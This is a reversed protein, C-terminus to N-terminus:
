GVGGGRAGRGGLLRDLVLRQRENLRHLNVGQWFRAKRVEAESGAVAEAIARGVCGVYWYLWRTIDLDGRQAAELERYYGEREM